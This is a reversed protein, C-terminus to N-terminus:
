GKKIMERFFSGDISNMLGEALKRRKRKRKALLSSVKRNHLGKDLQCDSQEETNHILDLNTEDKNQCVIDTQM